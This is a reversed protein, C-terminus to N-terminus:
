LSAEGHPSRKKPSGTLGFILDLATLRVSNLFGLQMLMLVVAFAVGAIAVLTRTKDHVLNLWALPTKM